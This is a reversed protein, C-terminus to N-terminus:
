QHSNKIGLFDPPAMAGRAGRAGRTGGGIDKILYPDWVVSAYVLHPRMNNDNKKQRKVLTTILGININSDHM